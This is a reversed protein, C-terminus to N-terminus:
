EIKIAGAADPDFGEPWITNQDYKANGLLAESLNAGELKASSLDTGRMFAGILRAGSLDAKYFNAGVLNAHVLNAMCLKANSLNAGSLNTNILNAYNLYAGCLNAEGLDAGNLYASLIANSLNARNFIAGELHYDRLNINMLDIDNLYIIPYDESESRILKSNSLFIVLKNKRETDLSNITTNTKIQAIERVDDYQNSQKLGKDLILMTMTDFYNQLSLERQNDLAIERDVEARKKAVERDTERELGDLVASIVILTFPIILLELVNWLTKGELDTCNGDPWLHCNAMLYVLWGLFLGVPIGILFLHKQNFFRFQKKMTGIDWRESSVVIILNYM